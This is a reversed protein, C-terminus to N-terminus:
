VSKVGRLIVIAGTLSGGFALYRSRATLFTCYSIKLIGHRFAKFRSFIPFNKPLKQNHAEVNPCKACFFHKDKHMIGSADINGHTYLPIM